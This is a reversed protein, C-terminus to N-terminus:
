TPGWLDRNGNAEPGSRFDAILAKLGKLHMLYSYSLKLRKTTRSGFQETLNIAFRIRDIAVRAQYAM